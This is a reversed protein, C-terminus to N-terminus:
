RASPLGSRAQIINQYYTALGESLWIDPQGPYPLYLHSLEHAATWDRMFRGLSFDPNVYFKVGQPHSRIVHAWPVPERADDARQIVVRLQERPVVDDLYNQTEQNSFQRQDVVEGTQDILVAYTNNKHLDLGLYFPYM